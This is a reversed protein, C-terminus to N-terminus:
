SPHGRAAVAHVGLVETEALLGEGDGGVRAIEVHALTVALRQGMQEVTQTAAAAEHQQGALDAGALGRHAAAEQLLDGLVAVHGIHEVRPEGHALQQLRHALLEV